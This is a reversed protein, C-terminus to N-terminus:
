QELAEIIRSSATGNRWRRARDVASLSMGIFLVDVLARIDVRYEKCRHWWDRYAIYCREQADTLTEAGPSRQEYRQTKVGLGGISVLWGDYLLQAKIQHEPSLSAWLRSHSVRRRVEHRTIRKGDGTEIIVRETPSHSEQWVPTMDVSTEPM